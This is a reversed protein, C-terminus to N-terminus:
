KLAWFQTRWTLRKCDCFCILHSLLLIRFYLIFNNMQNRSVLWVLLYNTITGMAIVILTSMM